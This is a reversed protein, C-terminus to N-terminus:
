RMSARRTPKIERFPASPRFRIKAGIPIQGALDLHYDAVVGIVPYGGTLPHDALFLLPKGDAPVQLAGTVVVESPLEEHRSRALSEPADLRLGIRNSQQKVEWVTNALVKLAEPTFWDTRPGLTLDLTVTEGSRPFAFNPMEHLLVPARIKTADRVALVSGAGVPEPGIESLTDRSASGLVREINFGGRVALYSYVGAETDSLTVEDGNELAIPEYAAAHLIQGAVNRLDIGRPAGAVGIVAAGSSRFSISGTFELCPEAEDNGVIRNASKFSSRDLVGSASVGQGAAGFRGLDQFLAPVPAVVVSFQVANKDVRPATQKSFERDKATYIMNKTTADYFRVRYGPQFYAPPTRALDWMKLPTTGILQWGGPSVRPYVGTFDGALAVAGAPIRARPTRRRPVHLAPDGGVLYGFGPAFGCFAVFYEADRHRCIVEHTSLGTLAAVEPLDEGDYVVPVEVLKGDALTTAMLNMRAIDGALEEAKAIQSSFRITLTRAAPIVDEVGPLPTARLAQLLLLTEGLTRLEVIFSEHNLALFRM